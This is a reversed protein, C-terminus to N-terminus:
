RWTDRCPRITFLPQIIPCIGPQVMGWFILILFFMM